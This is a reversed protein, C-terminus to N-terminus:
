ALLPQSQHLSVQRGAGDPLSDSCADGFATSASHLVISRFSWPLARKKWSQLTRQECRNPQSITAGHRNFCLTNQIHHLSANQTAPVANQSRSTNKHAHAHAQPHTHTHKNKTAPVIFEHSRPTTRTSDLAYKTAPAVNQRRFDNCSYYIKQSRM